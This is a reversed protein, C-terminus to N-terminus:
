LCNVYHTSKSTLSYIEIESLIEPSDNTFRLPSATGNCVHFYTDKRLKHERITM